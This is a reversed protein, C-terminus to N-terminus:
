VEMWELECEVGEFDNREGEVNMERRERAPTTLINAPSRASKDASTM